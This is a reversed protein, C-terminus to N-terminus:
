ALCTVHQQLFTDVEDAPLAVFKKKATVALHSFHSESAAMLGVDPQIETLWNTIVRDPKQGEEKLYALQVLLKNSVHDIPPLMKPRGRGHHLFRGRLNEYLEDEILCKIDM